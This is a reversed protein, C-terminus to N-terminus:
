KDPFIGTLFSEKCIHTFPVVIIHIINKILVEWSWGLTSSNCEKAPMLAVWEKMPRSRSLPAEGIKLTKEYLLDESIYM